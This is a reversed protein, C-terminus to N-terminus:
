SLYVYHSHIFFCLSKLSPFTSILMLYKGGTELFKAKFTILIDLDLRHKCLFAIVLRGKTANFAFTVSPKYFCSDSSTFPLSNNVINWQCKATLAKEFLRPHLSLVSSHLQPVSFVRLSNLGKVRQLLWLNSCRGKSYFM